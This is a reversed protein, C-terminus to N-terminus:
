HAGFLIVKEVTSYSEPALVAADMHKTRAIKDLVNGLDHKHTQTYGYTTRARGVYLFDTADYGRGGGCM